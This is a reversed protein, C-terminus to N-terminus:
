LDIGLDLEVTEAIAPELYKDWLGVFDARIYGNKVDTGFRLSRPHIDFNALLSALKKAPGRIKGNKLDNEWLVPWPSNHNEVRVLYELLMETTIKDYSGASMISRIDALLQTTQSILKEKACVRVIADRARDPWDGGALDAIALLPKSINRQRPKLESPRSPNVKKLAERSAAAWAALAQAIPKAEEPAIEEDYEEVEEDRGLKVIPLVFARSEVTEPLRGIGALAKPCYPSFELLENKPGDCRPIVDGREFGANLTGRLTENAESKIKENYITDYEDIIVTPRDKEIKRYIVAPTPVVVKWPARALLKVISLVTSKGCEFEPSRVILYPTWHWIDYVWTHAVWLAVLDFQEPMPFVIYRRLFAVISDLTQALSAPETSVRAEGMADDHAQNDCEASAGGSLLKQGGRSDTSAKIVGEDSTSRTTSERAEGNSNHLPAGSDRNAGARGASPAPLIPKAPESVLLDFVSM